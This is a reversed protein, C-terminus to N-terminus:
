KHKLQVIFIKGAYLMMQLTCIVYCVTAHMTILLELCNENLYYICIVWNERGTCHMHLLVFTSTKVLTQRLEGIGLFVPHNELYLMMVNECLIEVNIKYKMLIYQTWLFQTIVFHFGQGLWVPVFCQFTMCKGWM